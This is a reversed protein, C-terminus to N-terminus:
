IIIVNGNTDDSSSVSTSFYVLGCIFLIIFTCRRLVILESVDGNKDHLILLMEVRLIVGFLKSLM